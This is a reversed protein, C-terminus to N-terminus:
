RYLQYRLVLFPLDARFCELGDFAVNADVLHVNNYFLDLVAGVLWCFIGSPNGVREAYSGDLVINKRM